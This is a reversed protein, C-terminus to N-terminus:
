SVLDNFINLMQVEINIKLPTRELEELLKINSVNKRVGLLQIMFQYM